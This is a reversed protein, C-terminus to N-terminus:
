PDFLGRSGDSLQPRYEHTEEEECYNYPQKFWDHDLIDQNFKLSSEEQSNSANQNIEDFKKIRLPLDGLIEKNEESLIEFKRAEVAKRKSNKVKKINSKLNYDSTM